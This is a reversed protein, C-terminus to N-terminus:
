YSWKDRNEMLLQYQQEANPVDPLVPSTAEEAMCIGSPLLFCIFLIAALLKKM